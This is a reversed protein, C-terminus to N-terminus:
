DLFIFVIERLGFGLPISSMQSCLKLKAGDAGTGQLRSEGFIYLVIFVKAPLGGIM